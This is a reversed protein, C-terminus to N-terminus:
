FLCVFNSPFITRGPIRRSDDLLEGTWWGDEPTSTVAIVDGAQFDFEEDISAQYDYLAKVSLMTLLIDFALPSSSVYWLILYAQRQHITRDTCQESPAGTFSKEEYQTRPIGCLWGPNSVSGAFGTAYGDVARAPSWRCQGCCTHICEAAAATRLAIATRSSSTATASGTRVM